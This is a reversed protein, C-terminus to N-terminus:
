TFISTDNLAIDFVKSWGATGGAGAGTSVAAFAGAVGAGAAFTKTGAPSTNFLNLIRLHSFNYSRNASDKNV